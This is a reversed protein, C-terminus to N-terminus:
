DASVLALTEPLMVGRAGCVALALLQQADNKRCMLDTGVPCTKEFFDMKELSKTLAFSLYNYYKKSM